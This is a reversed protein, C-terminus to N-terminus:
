KLLTVIDSSKELVWDAGSAELKMRDTSGTLVGVTIAGVALGLQIDMPHDGIMASKEPEADLLSLAQRLHEPDPKVRAIHNRTLVVDVAAYIDPFVEELAARCNRTVIGTKISRAKLESLLAETHDFLRAEGAARLEIQEILQMAERHYQIAQAPDQKAILDRANEVMELIFLRDMNEPPVHYTALHHVLCRRMESFDVNLTAMTGDFDFVIADLHLPPKNM